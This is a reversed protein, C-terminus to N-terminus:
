RESHLPMKEVVYVRDPHTWDDSLKVDGEHTMELKQAVRISRINGPDIMAVLRDLGLVCFGYDRVAIAAETAYGRGWYRKALRYGVEVEERGNIDPFYFLGCYGIVSGSEKEVVAYPGFGWNVFYNRIHVKIWDRIKEETEIKEGFEMVESDGLVSKLPTSDLIHLHRLFLRETELRMEM